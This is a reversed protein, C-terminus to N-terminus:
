QSGSGGACRARGGPAHVACAPYSKQSARSPAPPALLIRVLARFGATPSAEAQQRRASGKALTVWPLFPMYTTTRLEIGQRTSVLSEFRINVATCGAGYLAIDWGSLWSWWPLLKQKESLSHYMYSHLQPAADLAASVTKVEFIPLTSVGTVYAERYPTWCYDPERGDLAITAERHLRLRGRTRATILELVHQLVRHYAKQEAGSTRLQPTTRIAERWLELIAAESVWPLRGVLTEWSVVTNASDLARVVLTNSAKALEAVRLQSRLFASPAVSAVSAIALAVLAIALALVLARLLEVEGM